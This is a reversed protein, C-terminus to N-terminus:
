EIGFITKLEPAWDNNQFNALTFEGGPYISQLPVALTKDQEPEKSVIYATGHYEVVYILDTSIGTVVPDGVIIFNLYIQEQPRVRVSLARKWTTGDNSYTLYMYRNASKGIIDNTTRSMASYIVMDSDGKNIAICGLDTAQPRLRDSMAMYLPFNQDWASFDEANESASAQAQSVGNESNAYSTASAGGDLPEGTFASAPQTTNGFSPDPRTQKPPTAAVSEVYKGDSGVYYGDPTVENVFMRGNKGVYYTGDIWQNKVQRGSEPDFYRWYGQSDRVWGTLMYDNEDVAYNWRDVGVVHRTGAGKNEYGEEVVLKWRGGENTWWKHPTIAHSPFGWALTLICTTIGIIIQKKM